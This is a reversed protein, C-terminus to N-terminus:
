GKCPGKIDYVRLLLKILRPHSEMTASITHQDILQMKQSLHGVLMPHHHAASHADM